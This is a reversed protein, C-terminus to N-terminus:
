RRAVNRSTPLAPVTRRSAPHTIIAPAKAGWKRVCEKILTDAWFGRGAPQVLVTAPGASISLERIRYKGYQEESLEIERESFSMRGDGEYEKLHGRIDKILTAVSAQWEEVEKPKDIEWQAKQQEQRQLEILADKLAMVSSGWNGLLSYTTTRFPRCPSITHDWKRGFVAVIAGADAKSLGHQRLIALVTGRAFASM